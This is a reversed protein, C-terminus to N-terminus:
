ACHLITLVYGIVDKLYSFLDSMFEPFSHDTHSHHIKSLGVLSITSAAFLETYVVNVVYSKKSPDVMNHTM